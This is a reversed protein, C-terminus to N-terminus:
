LYNFMVNLNKSVGYPYKKYNRKENYFEDLIKSEEDYNEESSKINIIIDSLDDFEPDQNFVIIKEYDGFYENVLPTIDNIYYVLGYSEKLFRLVRGKEHIKFNRSLKNFEDDFSSDNPLIKEVEKKLAITKYIKKLEYKILYIDNLFAETIYECEPFKQKMDNESPFTEWYDNNNKVIEEIIKLKQTNDFLDELM